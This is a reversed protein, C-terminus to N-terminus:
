HDGRSLNNYFRVVNSSKWRLNTVIFRVRLFLEGAIPIFYYAIHKRYTYFFLKVLKLKNKAWNNGHLLWLISKITKGRVYPFSIRGSQDQM